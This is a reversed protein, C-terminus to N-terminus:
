DGQHIWVFANGNFYILGGSGEEERITIAPRSLVVEKGGDVDGNEKFTTEYTTKNTFVNWNGAWQFNDGANGFDKGAGLVYVSESQAFLIIIGKKHDLVREVAIAIDAKKDGSFDAELFPPRLYGAVAYTGKLTELRQQAWLPITTQGQVLYFCLFFYVSLVTRM